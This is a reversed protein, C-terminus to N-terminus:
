DKITQVLEPTLVFFKGSSNLVYWQGNNDNCDYLYAYEEEHIRRIVSEINTADGVEIEKFGVDDENRDRNYFICVDNEPKNYSHEGSPHIKPALQSM